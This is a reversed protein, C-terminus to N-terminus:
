DIKPIDDFGPNDQKVNWVIWVNGPILLEDQTNIIERKVSYMGLGKSLRNMQM